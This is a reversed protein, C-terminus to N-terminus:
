DEWQSFTGNAPDYLVDRFDDGGGLVAIWRRQKWCDRLYSDWEIEGGYIFSIYLYKRGGIVTGAYQRRYGSLRPAVTRLFNHGVIVSDPRGDSSVANFKLNTGTKAPCATSFNPGAVSPAKSTWAAVAAPLAKEAQQVVDEKPTWMESDHGLFDPSVEEHVRPPTFIQGVFGPGSISKVEPEAALGHGGFLLMGLAFLAIMKM